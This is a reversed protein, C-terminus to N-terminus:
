LKSLAEAALRGITKKLSFGDEYISMEERSACLKELKAKAEGFRLQGVLTAAYGQIRAEQDELLTVLHNSNMKLAEPRTRGIEVLARLVDELLARDRSLQALRPIFSSFADPRFRIIEGIADVAGWTSAATDTVSSFLEHLLKSVAGPDSDYIAASVRGMAEAARRRLLEDPSYLLRKLNRLVRKDTKASALLPGLEYSAVFAEVEQKSLPRPLAGAATPLPDRTRDQATSREAQPSESGGKLRIFLLTGAIRRGQYVGGHVIRHTELDYDRVQRELYDEEPLLNWAKDSDGNCARVLADVLASGLNHGTVDCVYAAGCTCCGMPMNSSRAEEPRELPSYCFPCAPKEVVNRGEFKSEILM